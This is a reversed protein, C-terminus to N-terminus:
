VQNLLKTIKETAIQQMKLNVHSYINLTTNIDSHGLRTQIVKFDIGQQLLLTANTHRLDHFRINKKFGLTNLIKKFKSTYYNPHVYKGNEWTMIFDYNRSNFTNNIYHPNYKIKNKIQLKKHTKLMNILSDSIYLTRESEETKTTEMFVKGYSYILNNKINVCHSDLDINGWELGALEGRRLGLELVIKLALGIIYDNYKKTDLINFLENIEDITLTNAVFKERKPRDVFKCPNNNMIQLKVARNFASNLMGYMNQLTSGSLNKKKESLILKDIHIPKIDKLLIDGIYNKVTNNLIENYRNYTNIKRNEKIYNELWDSLYYSVTMKKPESYGITYKALAENLSELAEKKTEGGKREIQKRKGNIKGLDLYYYWHDGKKRIGGKM